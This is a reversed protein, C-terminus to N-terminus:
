WPKKPGAGTWRVGLSPRAILRLDKLHAAGKLRPLMRQSKFFADSKVPHSQDFMAFGAPSADAPLTQFFTGELRRDHENEFVYDVTTRARPGQIQVTVRIARPKLAQAGDKTEILIRASTARRTVKPLM